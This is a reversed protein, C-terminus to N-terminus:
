YINNYYGHQRVDIIFLTSYHRIFSSYGSKLGPPAPVSFYTATQRRNKGKQCIRPPRTNNKFYFESISCFFFYFFFFSFPLLFFSSPFSFFFFSLPSPRWKFLAGVTRYGAVARLASFKQANENVGSLEVSRAVVRTKLVEADGFCRKWYKPM